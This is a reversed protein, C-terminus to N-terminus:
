RARRKAKNRKDRDNLLKNATDNSMPPRRSWGDDAPKPKPKAAAKKAPTSKTTRYAKISKGSAGTFRFSGGRGSGSLRGSSSGKAPM